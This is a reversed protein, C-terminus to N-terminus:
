STKINYKDALDKVEEMFKGLVALNNKGVQFGINLTLSEKNTLFVGQEDRFENSSGDILMDGEGTLLWKRNIGFAEELAILIGSTIDRKGNEVASVQSQQIKALDAFEKQGKGVHLRVQKFRTIIKEKQSDIM